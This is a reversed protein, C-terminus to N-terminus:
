RKRTKDEAPWSKFLSSDTRVFDLLADIFKRTSFLICRAEAVLAHEQSERDEWWRGAAERDIWRFEASPDVALRRNWDMVEVLHLFTLNHYSTGLMLVKTGRQYCRFLPSRDGFTKMWPSLDWPSKLGTDAGQGTVWDAAAHGRAAVSHSYHDSRLTGPLQRFVETVWGVTSPTTTPNWSAARQSEEILNFSPMLVVGAPAVVTELAQIVTEAGGKVPGLSRLSSHVFVSDGSRLGLVRLDEGLSFLSAPHRNLVDPTKPM